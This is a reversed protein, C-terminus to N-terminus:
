RLGHPVRLELGWGAGAEQLEAMVISAARLALDAVGALGQGVACHYWLHCRHGPAPTPDMQVAHLRPRVEGDELAPLPQRSSPPRRQWRSLSVFRLHKQLGGPFRTGTGALAHAPTQSFTKLWSLCPLSPPLSPPLFSWRSESSYSSSNLLLWNLQPSAKLSLKDAPDERDQQSPLLDPATKTWCKVSEKRGNVVLLLM